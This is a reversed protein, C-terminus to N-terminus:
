KVTRLLEILKEEVSSITLDARAILQPHGDSMACVTGAHGIMPLDNENDGFAMCESPDIRLHQCLVDLATGKDCGERLFDMWSSRGVVPVLYPAFSTFQAAISENVGYKRYLSIKIFPEEVACIDPVVTTDNGVHERMHQVYAADKPQIYCTHVGSLLVECEPQALITHMLAQGAARDIIEKSLIQNQWVVLSGNECIYGIEDAVPAFLRRINSYQRGSCAAFFIGHARLERILPFLAPPIAYQGDRMLTGDIDSAILQIM